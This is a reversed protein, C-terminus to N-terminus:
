HGASALSAQKEFVLKDNKATAPLMPMVEVTMTKGDPSLEMRYKTISSGNHVTKLAVLKPGNYWFSMKAEESGSTKCDKGGISCTVSETREKAGDKEIQKMTIADDKQTLQWILSEARPSHIDSKTADLQWTGNLDPRSTDQALVAACGIAACLVVTRM